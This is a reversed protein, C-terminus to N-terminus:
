ALGSAPLITANNASTASIWTATEICPAEQVDSMAKFTANEETKQKKKDRWVQKQAKRKARM